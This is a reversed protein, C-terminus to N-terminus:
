FRGYLVGERASAVYIDVDDPKSVGALMAGSKEDFGVDGGNFFVIRRGFRNPALGKLVGEPNSFYWDLFAIDVVGDAFKEPCPGFVVDKVKGGLAWMGFVGISMNTLPHIQPDRATHVKVPLRKSGDAECLVVDYRGYLQSLNEFGPSCWKNGDESVHAYFVIEGEKPDHSLVGEDNFVKDQGYDLLYPSIVKTTTTVLVSLGKEKFYRASEIMLTTKGGGGTISVFPKPGDKSDCYGGYLVDYLNPNTRHLTDQMSCQM